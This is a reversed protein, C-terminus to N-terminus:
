RVVHSVPESWESKGFGNVARVQVYYRVFPTLPALINAKSSTTILPDTWKRNDIPAGEVSYRYEYLLVKHQQEFDLRMQGSQKGDKLRVGRVKDPVDGSKPYSSLEFGSSLLMQLDGAAVKSVYFAIQQLALILAQKGANKAATDQPSGRRRAIALKERFDALLLQTEEITPRPDPFHINGKMAMVVTEGRVLLEDDKTNKFGGLAQRQLNM